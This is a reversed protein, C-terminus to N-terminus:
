ATSCSTTSSTSRRIARWRWTSIPKSARATATSSASPSGTKSSRPGARRRPRDRGHPERVPRHLGAAPRLGRAAPRLDSGRRGAGGGAPHKHLPMIRSFHVIAGTLGRRLAHDLFVSNLMQRAPPNLGFSINSLGLIIQCEPMARAIREIADLTKLGLRRDDENGTCITFTLPDFLLDSPPLGHKGCAFDHLRRAIALKHEVDKAMGTEDITLAIVAAGFRRALELRKDAADEGDEFNISNIIPKGGYLKLAAELM